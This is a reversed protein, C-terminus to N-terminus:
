VRFNERGKTKALRKMRRDEKERLLKIQEYVKFNHDCNYCVLARRTKEGKCIPCIRKKKSEKRKEKRANLTKIDPLAENYPQFGLDKDWRFCEVNARSLFDMCRLQTAKLRVNQGGKVEFAAVRDGKVAIIDPWGNKLLEWGSEKLIQWLMLEYRNRPETLAM